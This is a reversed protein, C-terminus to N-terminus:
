FRWDIHRDFFNLCYRAPFRTTLRAPLAAKASQLSPQFIRLPSPTLQRQCTIVSLSVQLLIMPPKMFRNSVAMSKPEAAGAAWGAAIRVVSSVSASLLNPSATKSWIVAARGRSFTKMDGNLMAMANCIVACPEAPAVQFAIAPVM